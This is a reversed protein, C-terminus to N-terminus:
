HLYFGIGVMEKWWQLIYDFKLIDNDALAWDGNQHAHGSYYVIYTDYRPGDSTRKSFLSCLKAKVDSLTVGSSTYDCGANDILHSVFFQQIVNLIATARGSIDAVHSSPLLTPSLDSRVNVAPAVLAYGICTGGLKSGFSGILSCIALELPLLFCALSLSLATKTRWSIITVLFTLFVAAKVLRNATLALHRIGRSALVNSYSEKDEFYSQNCLTIRNSITWCCAIFALHFVCWIASFVGFLPVVIFWEKHNKILLSHITLYAIQIALLFTLSLKRLISPTRLLKKWRELQSQAGFYLDFAASFCFRGAFAALAPVNPHLQFLRPFIELRATILFAILQVFCSFSKLRVGIVSAIFSMSLLAISLYQSHFLTSSCMLGILEILEYKSLLVVNNAYGM